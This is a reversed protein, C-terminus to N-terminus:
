SAAAPTTPWCTWSSTAADCSPRTPPCWSAGTTPRSANRVLDYSSPAQPIAALTAAQALTLKDLDHSASTSKAAAQVGYSNNGYFNQNLYATLIAQKGTEGPYAATVRISQILEKVKREALLGPDQMVADPLLKQRVLQQTVTSAGRADGRLTNLAASVIGLPDIGTNAWFTKDEVATVTDALVPPVQDWTIVRRREGGTSIRALVKKGDRAYIISEEPFVITELSSAAPLDRSYVIAGGVTVLFGLMGALALVGFIGVVAVRLGTSGRRKPGAAPATTGRSVPVGPPTPAVPPRGAARPPAPPLPQSQRPPPYAPRTGGPTTPRM